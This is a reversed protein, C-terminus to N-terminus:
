RGLTMARMHRRFGSVAVMTVHGLLFLVLSAFTFFHVTRASQAGGFMETLFPAAANIAPSMAFGTVVMLPALVCIVVLYAV